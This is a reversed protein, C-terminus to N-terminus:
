TGNYKRKSRGSGTSVRMYKDFECLCNQLDQNCIALTPLAERIKEAVPKFYEHFSSATVHGPEGFMVWSLGKLSGPGPAVFSSPHAGRCARQLLSRAREAGAMVHDCLYDIKDMQIGHTTVVYANGWVPSYQSIERMTERIHEPMHMEYFPFRKLTDIRNVMRALIMNYEFMESGAYPTYANRIWKTVKDSERFVNCFYTTQFVPDRSWPPPLNALRKRRISERETIWYVLKSLENGSSELM